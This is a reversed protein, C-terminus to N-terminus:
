VFTLETRQPKGIGFDGGAHFRTDHAACTLQLLISKDSIYDHRVVDMQQDFWPQRKLSDSLTNFTHASIVCVADEPTGALSKPLAFRKIM